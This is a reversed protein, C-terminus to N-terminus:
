VDLVVRFGRWRVQSAANSYSRASCRLRPREDRFSGGRHVRQVRYLYDDAQLDERGDNDRYPYRFPEQDNGWLTSTWEQVNGILDCCDYSSAGRPHATVSTTDDGGANCREEEWENGWPYLSGKAGRAAKEWEAETPLRYRRGTQASLWRCYAQADYWSVGVVPHDRKAAPPERLFWGAKRPAEQAQERKLFEAYQDNTVPYKGIRYAPLTLEHQPTEHDPVGEGAPSGMLFPGALVYVTEPEFPLPTFTDVQVEEWLQGSKLRMFLVPVAADPRRAALLTSRAENIALDVQGHELLRRYFTTSFKLASEVTVLNQMAVVAPVGVSVLKPAMGLFADGTSRTASQCAALFVLRPRVGQRALLQALEDDLLLRTQREDDQVYLVAQDRKASFAGHGLYHLIHYGNRLKEELRESTVLADLFDVQLGEGGYHRHGRRSAAGAGRGPPVVAGRPSRGLQSLPAFASELTKRELEVNIRPLNYKEEIDNPDSIVVLVRIPREEVPGGWPLAIPLYRSFPTDAQASLMAPGDRLLEWPLTHLEAAKPDIRLRIRRQPAQGRAEAWAIRLASDALLAELLRQGDAAPDGSAVWPLINASLHGRPFEQQGGLTIEVPYGAVSADNPFIRIELDTFQEDTTPAPM